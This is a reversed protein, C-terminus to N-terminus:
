VLVRRPHYGGGLTGLLPLLTMPLAIWILGLLLAVARGGAGHRRPTLRFFEYLSGAVIILALAALTFRSGLIAAVTVAVIIIGSLARKKM